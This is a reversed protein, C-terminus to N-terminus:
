RQIDVVRDVLELTAACHSELRNEQRHRRMGRLAVVVSVFPLREPRGRFVDAHHDGEVDAALWDIERAPLLM